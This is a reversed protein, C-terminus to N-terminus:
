QSLFVRSSVKWILDFPMIELSLSKRHNFHNEQQIMRGLVYIAKYDIFSGLNENIWAIM